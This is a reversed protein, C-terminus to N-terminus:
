SLWSKKQFFLEANPGANSSYTIQLINGSLNYDFSINTPASESFLDALDSNTGNSVVFMRGSRVENNRKLVYDIFISNEKTVDFEIGTPFNTQNATLSVVPKRNSITVNDLSLDQKPNFVTNFRGLDAVPIIATSSLEFTDNNSASEEGQFVVVPNGSPYTGSTGCNIYTNSESIVADNGSFTRIATEGIDKFVSSSIKYSRVTANLEHGRYMNEFYCENFSVNSINSSEAGLNSVFGSNRFSCGIFKINNQSVVTGIPDFVISRSSSSGGTWGGAFEVDRFLMVSSRQCSLVDRDDDRAITLNEVKTNEPLTEGNTGIQSGKQFGSDATGVVFPLSANTLRIVTREKGEGRITANPPLYISDADIIYVGAPFFIERFEGTESVSTVTFINELARNISESDDTVGDGKAGYAKVSLRDDLAEQYSRVVPDSPTPGTIAEISTNSKYIYKIVDPNSLTTFETLIETNGVEPAGAAVEGNGIFIRRQDLAHGLESDDLQPLDAFLGRRHKIKSKQNVPM